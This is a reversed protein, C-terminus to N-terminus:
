ALGDEPSFRYPPTDPPVPQLWVRAPDVECLAHGPTAPGYDGLRVTVYSEPRNMDDSVVYLQDACTDKEVHEPDTILVVSGIVLDDERDEASTTRAEVVAVQWAGPDFPAGSPDPLRTGDRLREFITALAPPLDGPHEAVDLWRTGRVSPDAWLVPTATREGSRGALFQWDPDLLRALPVLDGPHAAWQDSPALVTGAFRGEHVATACDPCADGAVLGTTRCPRCPRWNAPETRPQYDPDWAATFRGGLRYRDIVSPVVTQLPAALHAAITDLTATAPVLVAVLITKQPM